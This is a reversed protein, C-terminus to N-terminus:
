RFIAQIKFIFHTLGIQENLSPVKNLDVKFQIMEEILESISRSDLSISNVSTIMPNAKYFDTTIGLCNKLFLIIADIKEDLSLNLEKFFKILDFTDIKGICYSDLAGTLEQYNMILNKNILEEIVLPTSDPAFHLSSHEIFGQNSLWQDIEAASPNQITLLHARSYITPLFSRRKNSILLIFKNDPLEELTKLLANQANINMTHAEYIVGVRRTSVSNTLSMFQNLARIGEIKKSVLSDNKSKTSALLSSSSDDVSLFCYDPHSGAEFYSCSNCHGCPQDQDLCLLKKSFYHALKSKGLGAEGEVLLCSPFKEITNNKIAPKLWPYQNGIM